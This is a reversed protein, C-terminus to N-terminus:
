PSEERNRYTDIIPALENLREEALLLEHKKFTESKEFLMDYLKDEDRENTPNPHISYWVMDRLILGVKRVGVGSLVCHPAVMREVRDNMLLLKEGAALIHFDQQKHAHGIILSFAPVRLERIYVGPAFGSRIEYQCCPLGLLKSELSEIQRSSGPIMQALFGTEIGCTEPQALQIM